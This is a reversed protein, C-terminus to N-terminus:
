RSLPMTIKRLSCNSSVHLYNHLYNEGMHQQDLKKSDSCVYLYIGLIRLDSNSISCSSIRKHDSLENVVMICKRM